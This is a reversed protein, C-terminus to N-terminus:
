RINKKITIMKVESMPIVNCNKEKENNIFIYNKTKGIFYNTSDSIFKKDQLEIITGTYMKKESILDFDTYASKISYFMFYFTFIIIRLYTLKPIIEKKIKLQRLLELSIIKIFMIVLINFSYNYAINLKSKDFIYSFTILFILSLYIFIYFKETFYIKIRELIKGNEVVDILHNQSQEDENKPVIVFFLFIVSIIIFALNLIDNLFLCIVETFELYSNIDINYLSYFVNLKIIGFIILITGLYPIITQLDEKKM